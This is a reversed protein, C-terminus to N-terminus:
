DHPVRCPREVDMEPKGYSQLVVIYSKPREPPDGLRAPYRIRANVQKWALLGVVIMWASALSSGKVDAEGRLDPPQYRLRALNALECLMM